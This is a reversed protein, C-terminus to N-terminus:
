IYIEFLIMWSNCMIFPSLWSPSVFILCFSYKNWFLGEYAMGQLSKMAQEGLIDWLFISTTLIFKFYILQMDLKRVFIASVWHCRHWWGALKIIGTEYMEVKMIYNGHQLWKINFLILLLLMGNFSDNRFLFQNVWGIWWKGILYQICGKSGM